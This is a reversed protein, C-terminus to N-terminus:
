SYAPACEWPHSLHGEPSHRGAIPLPVSHELLGLQVIFLFNETMEFQSLPVQSCVSKKNRSTLKRRDVPHLFDTSSFAM